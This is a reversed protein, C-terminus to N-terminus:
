LTELSFNNAIRTVHMIFDSVKLNSKMQNCLSCCPACNELTYGKLSDIRDIGYGGGGCYRCASEAIFVFQKYDIEFNRGWRKAESKYQLFRSRTSKEYKKKVERYKYTKNRKSRIQIYLNKDESSMSAYLERSRQKIAERHEDRYKQVALRSCTKREFRHGLAQTKNKYFEDLPKKINCLYCTRQIM